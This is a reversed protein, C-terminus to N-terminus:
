ARRPRTARAARKTAKGMAVLLRDVEAPPLKAKLRVAPALATFSPEVIMMRAVPPDQLLIVREGRFVPIHAPVGELWIWHETDDPDADPLTGDAALAHFSALNFTVQVTPPKKPTSAPDKLAAVARPDPRAGDLLGKKPDGVIADTLLVFLELNSSIDRMVVRYGRRSEPHLVLVPEDDLIALVQSLFSVEEVAAELPYVAEALVGSAQEQKRLKRSRTLCAVASLCRASLMKWAAADRPKKASVAAGSAAIAEDVLPEGSAKVCARAFRTAAELAQPLNRSAAPWALEPSAGAEVLAGLVLSLVQAARGDAHEAGAALTRLAARTAKTDRADFAKMVRDVASRLARDNGTKTTAELLREVSLALDSM